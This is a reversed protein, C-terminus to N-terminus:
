MTSTISNLSRSCGKVMRTASGSDSPPAKTASISACWLKEMGESMPRTISMPMAVLFEMRSTSYAIVARRSSPMARSSASSSAQWLLARGMMMVVSAMPAPMIGIASPRPLASMLKRAGMAM